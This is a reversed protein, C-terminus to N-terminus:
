GSLLGARAELGEASGYGLGRVAPVLSRPWAEQPARRSIPTHGPPPLMVRLSGADKGAGAKSGRESAADRKNPARPQVIILARPQM